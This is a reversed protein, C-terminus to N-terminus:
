ILSRLLTRVLEKKETIPFISHNLTFSWNFSYWDAKSEKFGDGLKPNLIVKCDVSTATNFYNVRYVEVLFPAKFPTGNDIPCYGIDGVQM